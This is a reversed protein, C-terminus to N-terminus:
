LSSASVPTPKRIIIFSIILWYLFIGASDAVMDLISFSREPIFHQVVEIFIGYALLYASKKLGFKSTAFAHDVIASLFLFVLGHGLKDNINAADQLPQPSFAQWTVLILALSLLLKFGVENCRNVQYSYM